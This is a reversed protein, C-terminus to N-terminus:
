GGMVMAHTPEILFTVRREGESRWPYPTQGIYKEALSDIDAEAQEGVITEVVYGQIQMSHYGGEDHEHWSLAVRPEHEINRPKVRDLASNVLIKGERTHVWVTTVQPSGSPNVTALHWFNKGELAQRVDDSLEITPDV